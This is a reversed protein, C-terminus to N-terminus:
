GEEAGVGLDGAHGGAAEGGFAGAPLEAGVVVDRQRGGRLAVRVVELEAGIELGAVVVDLEGQWGEDDGDGVVERVDGLHAGLIGAREVVVEARGGGAEFEGGRGASEGRFVVVG